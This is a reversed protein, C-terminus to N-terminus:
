ELVIKIYAGAIDLQLTLALSTALSRSPPGAGGSFKTAGGDFKWVMSNNAIWADLWNM